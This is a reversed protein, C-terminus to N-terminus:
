MNRAQNAKDGWFLNDDILSHKHLYEIKQLRYYNINKLQDETLGRKELIESMEVIGDRVTWDCKFGKFAKKIAEFSVRYTRTDVGDQIKRDKVLDLDKEEIEENNQMFVIKTGSIQSQVMKAIDLIKFNQTTDGVNLILPEGLNDQFNIAHHIAKCSDEIYVNPRWAQGDSNLIIQNTTLAMGVFMNIVIDFRMRSSPGFLTAFRLCIPTFTNDSITKLDQEILLKNLSYPTQSNTKSTETLLEESAKGYVSCSSAFIFKVGEKKCMQAIKLSYIRTPEFIIEPDLNGFPDNSIGALHVVVDVNALDSRQFSRLDKLIINEDKSPWLTCDKFFGTDYGVTKYGRENLYPLLVSGIYGLAGTVLIKGM